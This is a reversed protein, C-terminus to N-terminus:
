QYRIAVAVVIRGQITEVSRGYWPGTVYAGIVQTHDYVVVAANAGLKAAEQRLAEEIKAASVEDDSPEARVEGLRVHPRTPETRLIEITAPDTPPFTPGGIEQTSTVSVTQCGTASLLLAAAVSLCLSRGLTKMTIIMQIRIKFQEFSLSVV